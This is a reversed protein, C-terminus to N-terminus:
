TPVLPGCYVLSPSQSWPGGEITMSGASAIAIRLRYPAPPAEATCMAEISYGGPINTVTVLDCHVEGQTSIQQAEFLWAPDVCLAQSVAWLGVYRPVENPPPPAPTPGVADVPPPEAPLEAPQGCAALALAAAAIRVYTM